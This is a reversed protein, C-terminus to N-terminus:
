RRRRGRYMGPSEKVASGGARDVFEQMSIALGPFQRQLRTDATVLLVGLARALVVFQADYASVHHALAVAMADRMSVDRSRALLRPEVRELTACAASKSIWKERVLTTLVNAVESRAVPPFIWEPDAANVRRALATFESEVSLYILLNTDGVIMM